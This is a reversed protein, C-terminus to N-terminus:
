KWQTPKTFLTTTYIYIQSVMHFIELIPFFYIIDKEKFKKAGFGISIWCFTYRFIVLSWVILMQFEFSLLIAALMFFMIQTFLFVNMQFKDFSKFLKTTKIQTKKKILWEKFNIQSATYTFSNSEYMIATNAKTAAQNIFLLDEGSRVNMHDMFGRNDFFISKKYALNRGIGMYPKSIKAWSMYHIATMVSDFRIFLNLPSNKIKAYGGYGLVITKDTSFQSTMQNLWEKSNPYCDANTFVLYDKTAAKIGLTVAYKKNAWFAENNQVKVLKINPYKKEYGEFLELSEDISADDILVIEYDHHNQDMLLPFYKKINEVENKACIIVSVSLKKQITTQKKTFSFQGFVGVYYIFQLCLLAIFIYLLYNLILVLM